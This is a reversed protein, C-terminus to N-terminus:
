RPIKLLSEKYMADLNKTINDIEDNLSNFETLDGTMNDKESNLAKKINNAKQIVTLINLTGESISDKEGISITKSDSKIL